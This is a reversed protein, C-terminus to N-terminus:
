KSRGSSSRARFRTHATPGRAAAAASTPSAPAAIVAAPGARHRRRFHRRPEVPERLPRHHVHAEPAQRHQRRRLRPPPPPAPASRATNTHAARPPVSTGSPNSLLTPPRPSTSRPHAGCTAISACAATPHNTVCQPQFESTSAAAAPTAISVHGIVASWCTFARSSTSSAPTASGAHSPPKAATGSGWSSARVSASATRPSLPLATLSRALSSPLFATSATLSPPLEVDRFRSLHQVYYSGTSGFRGVGSARVGSKMEAMRDARVMASDKRMEPRYEPASGMVLLLLHRLVALWRLWCKSYNRYVTNGRGHVIMPRDYTM